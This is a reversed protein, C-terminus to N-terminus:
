ARDLASTMLYRGLGRGIADPILGFFAIEVEGPQRWDLELIGATEGDLKLLNLDTEPDSLVATLTADDLSLREWWMWPEGILRMLARYSELPPDIVRELNTGARPTSIGVGIPRDIMELYTVVELLKGAPPSTQPM